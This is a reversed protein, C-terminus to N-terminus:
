AYTSVSSAAAGLCGLCSLKVRRLAWKEDEVIWRRDGPGLEILYQAERSPQSSLLAQDPHLLSLAASATAIFAITRLLSRM